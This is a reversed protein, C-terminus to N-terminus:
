PVASCKMENVEECKMKGAVAVAQSGKREGNERKM